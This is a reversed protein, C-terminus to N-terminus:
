PFFLSETETGTQAFFLSESGTEAGTEAFFLSESDAESGTEAFFLSELNTKIKIGNVSVALLAISLKMM